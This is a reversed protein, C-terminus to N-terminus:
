ISDPKPMHRRFHRELSDSSSLGTSGEYNPLEGKQYLRFILEFSKHKGDADALRQKYIAYILSPNFSANSRSVYSPMRQQEKNILSWIAEIDELRTNPSIRIYIEDTDITLPIATGDRRSFSEKTLYSPERDKAVGVLDPRKVFGYAVVREPVEFRKTTEEIIQSGRCEGYTEFITQKLSIDKNTLLSIISFGGQDVLTDSWEKFKYAKDAFEPDVYLYHRFWEVDTKPRSLQQDSEHQILELTYCWLPEVM